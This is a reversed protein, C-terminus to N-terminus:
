FGEFEPMDEFEQKSLYTDTLIYPTEDGSIESEEKFCQAEDPTMVMHAGNHSIRVYRTRPNGLRDFMLMPECCMSGGLETSSVVGATAPTNTNM